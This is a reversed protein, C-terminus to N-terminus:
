AIPHPAVVTNDILRVDGAWAALCIVAGTAPDFVSLPQLSKPHAISVYEVRFGAGALQQTAETELTKPVKVSLQEAIKTLTQHLLPAKNRWAATLRRNRSSMALGDPERQIPCAVLGLSRGTQRLMERVIAVQQYDKQGMFLADPRVLDLLRNVVQAVGAFHGPREAGEMVQELPGFAIDLETDLGPPYIVEASPLFVLDCDAGELLRVDRGPTRPYTDLDAARDFQTPNVFISAVTRACGRKSAAILSLHGEHLAGMTPVFGVTGESRLQNLAGRLAAATKVVQM